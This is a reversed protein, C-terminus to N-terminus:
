DVKFLFPYHIISTDAIKSSPLEKFGMHKYIPINAPDYTECYCPRNITKSYELIPKILKSGIGKGQMSPRVALNYLFIDQNQTIEAKKKFSFDEAHDVRNLTDIFESMFLYKWSGSIIYKWTSHGSFGPPFWQAFGNVDDSESYLLGNEGTLRILSEIAVDVKKHYDKGKFFYKYISYNTFAEVGCSIFRDINSSNMICFGKQKIIKLADVKSYPKM